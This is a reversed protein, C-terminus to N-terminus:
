KPLRAQPADCGGYLVSSRAEFAILFMGVVIAVICAVRLFFGDAFRKM